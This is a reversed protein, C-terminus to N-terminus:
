NLCRGPSIPNDRPANYDFKGKPDLHPFAQEQCLGNRLFSVPKKRQGPSTVNKENTISPIEYVLITENTAIIHM